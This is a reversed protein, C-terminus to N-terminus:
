DNKAGDEIKTSLNPKRLRVFAKRSLTKDVIGKIGVINQAPQSPFRVLPAPTPYWNRKRSSFYTLYRLYRLCFWCGHPNAATKSVDVLELAYVSNM